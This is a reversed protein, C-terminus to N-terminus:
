PRYSFVWDAEARQTNAQAHCSACGSEPFSVPAFDQGAAARKYEVYRWGGIAPDAGPTKEMIAILTVQGQVTADKVVVAGAPFTDGVRGATVYVRKDGPHAGAGLSAASAPIPLRTWRLYDAILKVDRQAIGPLAAAGPRLPAPSRQSETTTQAPETTTTAEPEPLTEPVPNSQSGDGCGAGILLSGAVALGAVCTGVRTHM